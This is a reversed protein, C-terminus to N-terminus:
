FAQAPTRGSQPNKVPPSQLPTHAETPATRSPTRAPASKQYGLM